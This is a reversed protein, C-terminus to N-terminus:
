HPRYPCNDYSGKPGTQNSCEAHSYTAFSSLTLAALTAIIFIRMATTRWKVTPQNGQASPLAHVGIISNM